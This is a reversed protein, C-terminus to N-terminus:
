CIFLLLMGSLFCSSASFFFGDVFLFSFSLLLFGSFSGFLFLLLGVVVVTAEVRVVELKKEVRGAGGNGAGRGAKECSPCVFGFDELPDDVGDEVVSDSLSLEGTTFRV